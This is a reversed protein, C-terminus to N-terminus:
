RKPLTSGTDSRAKTLRHAARALLALLTGDVRTPSVAIMMSGIPWLQAISGESCLILWGNQFGSARSACM